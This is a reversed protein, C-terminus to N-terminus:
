QPSQLYGLLRSSVGANLQHGLRHHKYPPVDMDRVRLQFLEGPRALDYGLRDVSIPAREGWGRAAKEWEAETPLRYGTHWKVWDNRMPAFGNRYVTALTASTYYAPVLGERESRANCWKVADSWDVWCVPHNTQKGQGEYGSNGARFAYGNTIAWQYVTDWLGKTVEYQDMYVASVYNTHLPLEWLVGQSDGLADGMVFSGAPIAAMGPPPDLATILFFVNTSYHDTWDKDVDWVIWKNTGATIGLGVDGIFHMAPFDYSLGGNTSVTVAVLMGNTATTNLDYYLDVLTTGARQSARAHSIREAAQLLRMPSNSVRTNNNEKEEEVANAADTTVIWWYDLNPELEPPLIVQQVRLCAENTALAGTHPFEGILLDEGPRSDTSLYVRDVWPGPASEHGGNVTTWSIGLSSDAKGEPPTGLGAVQLDSGLYLTIVTNTVRAFPFTTVAMYEGFQETQLNTLMLTPGMADALLNTGRFYWQVIAPCGRRCSTALAVDAGPDVVKSSLVLKGAAILALSHSAGASIAVVNSLGPPLTTQGAQNNGWAVVGGDTRLALNHSGGAAIAVVNSLDSPVTTRSDLNYGWAVVRGGATLGLSHIEGAAIAVLDPLYTPKNCQGFSNAGWGTVVDDARLELNFSGGAAIAAAPSYFHPLNTQGSSNRGWALLTGDARLALSHYSGAAIAVVNSLESPVNTKGYSNDGWAVVRGDSTLALSHNAGADIAVVATLGPPVASQGTNNLGWAAVRGDATLALNHSGGAAIAVVNSLGSPVDRQGFLNHGWGIVETPTAATVQHEAALSHALIM